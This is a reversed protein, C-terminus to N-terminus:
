EDRKTEHLDDALRECENERQNESRVFAYTVVKGDPKRTAVSDVGYLSVAM